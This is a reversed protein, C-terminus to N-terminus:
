KETKTTAVTSGAAEVGYDKAAGEPKELIIMFQISKGPGVEMNSLSDGFQNAMAAEIKEMSMTSLQEKTLPNGCFANKSSMVEGDAGYIMGKVQIAARPKKFDNVAEGSIVLLDGTLKNKVFTADVNRVSIHGMEALTVKEGSFMSYGFFAMAGAILVGLVAILGTSAPGQKRRSAISLPPLEEQPAASESFSATAARSQAEALPAFLLEQSPKLEEPSVHQVGVSTFEDGFDIEDLSFPADASAESISFANKQSATTNEVGMSSAFDDMGFDFSVGDDSEEPATTVVEGFMDDGTFDLGGFVEKVPKAAPVPDAKPVDSFDLTNSAAVPSDNNDQADGFDFEGFDIDGTTDEVEEQVPPFMSTEEAPSVDQKTSGADLSYPSEQEDEMAFTESDFEGTEQEPLIDFSEDPAEFEITSTDEPAAFEEQVSEEDLGTSVSADLMNGFDSQIESESQDRSVSFVHRCKVCRVKVGKDPVKSDDLKFKTRCQECQIIMQSEGTIIPIKHM